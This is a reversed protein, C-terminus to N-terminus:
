GPTTPSLSLVQPLKCMCCLHLYHLMYNSTELEERRNSQASKERSVKSRQKRSETTEWSQDRNTQTECVQDKSERQEGEQQKENQSKARQKGSNEVGSKTLSETRERSAGTEQKTRLKDKQEKPMAEVLKERQKGQREECM